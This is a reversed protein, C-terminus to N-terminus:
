KGVIGTRNRDAREAALVAERDKDPLDSLMDLVDSVSFEGPNFPPEVPPKDEERQSNAPETAPPEAAVSANIGGSRETFGADVHGGFAHTVLGTNNSPGTSRTIKPM